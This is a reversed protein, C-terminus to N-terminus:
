CGSICVFGSQQLSNRCQAEHIGKMMGEALGTGIAAGRGFAPQAPVQQAAYATCNVIQGSTPYQLIVACACILVSTTLMISVAMIASRSNM